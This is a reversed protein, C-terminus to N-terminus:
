QMPRQLVKDIARLGVGYRRSLSAMTEREHFYSLQIDRQEGQSLAVEGAGAWGEQIRQHYLDRRTGSVLHTPRVCLPNGCRQTVIHRPEIPGNSLLWAVRHATHLRGDMWAAGYSGLRAKAEWTWCDDPADRSTDVKSWFSRKFEAPSMDREKPGSASERAPGERHGTGM